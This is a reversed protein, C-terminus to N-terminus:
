DEREDRENWRRVFKWCKGGKNTWDRKKEMERGKDDMVKQGDEEEGREAM